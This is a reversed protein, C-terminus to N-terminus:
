CPRARCACASLDGRQVHLGHERAVASGRPKMGMEPQTALRKPVRRTNAEAMPMKVSPENRHAQRGVDVHQDSGCGAPSRRPWSAAPPGSVMTRVERFGFQIAGHAEHRDGPEDARARARSPPNIM